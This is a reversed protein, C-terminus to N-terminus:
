KGCQDTAHCPGLHPYPPGSCLHAPAKKIPAPEAQKRRWQRVIEAAKRRDTEIAGAAVARKRRFLPLDYHPVSRCQFWARRCGIREAMAHLEDLSDALMHCMVMRGLRHRSQDVYVAM